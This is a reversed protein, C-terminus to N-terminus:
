RRSIKLGIRHAILCVVVIHMIILINSITPDYLIDDLVDEKTEEHIPEGATRVFQGFSESFCELLGNCPNKAVNINEAEKSYGSFIGPFIQFLSTGTKQVGELKVTEENESSFFNFISTHSEAKAFKAKKAPHFLSSFAGFISIDSDVKRLPEIEKDDCFFRSLEDFVSM